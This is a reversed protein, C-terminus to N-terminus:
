QLFPQMANRAEALITQEVTALTGLMRIGSAHNHGGGGFLAALKNANFDGKARLSIKIDGPEVELFLISLLLFHQLLLLQMIKQHLQM